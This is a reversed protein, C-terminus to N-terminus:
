VGFRLKFAVALSEPVSVAGLFTGFDNVGGSLMCWEIQYNPDACQVRLWTECQRLMFDGAERITDRTKLIPINIYGERQIPDDGYGAWAYDYIQTM